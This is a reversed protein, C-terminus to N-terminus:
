ERLEMLELEDRLLSLFTSIKDIERNVTYALAILNESEIDDSASSFVKEKVNQIETVYDLIAETLHKSRIINFQLEDSLTNEHVEEYKLYNNTM